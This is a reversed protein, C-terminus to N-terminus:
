KLVISNRFEKPTYRTQKKFAATFHTSNKYGVTEAIEYIPKNTQYLLKKAEDMRLKLSYKFISEGFLRKFEKKLTNENLYIEKSLMSITYQVHLNSTIIKEALYIKKVVTNNEIKRKTDLKFSLLELTKSELFLRKLIGTKDDLMIENFINQIKNNSLQKLNNKFDTLLNTNKTPFLLNLKHKNIFIPNMFIIIQKIKKEKYYKFNYPNYKMYSIYYESNEQLIEKKRKEDIIRKEGEILGSYILTNINIKINFNLSFNLKMNLQFVNLGEFSYSLLTGIGYDTKLELKKSTIGCKQYNSKIKFVDEIKICGKISTINIEM